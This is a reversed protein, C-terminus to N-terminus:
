GCCPALILDVVQHSVPLQPRVWALRVKAITVNPLVLRSRDPLSSLPDSILRLRFCTDVLATRTQPYNHPNFIAVRRFCKNTRMRSSLRPISPRARGNAYTPSLANKACRGVRWVSM